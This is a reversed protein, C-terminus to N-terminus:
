KQKTQQQKTITKNNNRTQEIESLMSSFSDIKQRKHTKKTDKTEVYVL